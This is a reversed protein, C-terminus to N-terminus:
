EVGFDQQRIKVNYEERLYDKLQWYEDFVKEDFINKLDLTYGLPIIILDYIIWDLIGKKKDICVKSIYYVNESDSITQTKKSYKKM